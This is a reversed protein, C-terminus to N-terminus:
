KELKRDISRLIETQVASSTILKDLKEDIHTLHNEGLRDVSKQMSGNAGNKKFVWVFVIVLALQALSGGYEILSGIFTTLEINEMNDIDLLVLIGRGLQAM